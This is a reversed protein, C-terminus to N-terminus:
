ANESLTVARIRKGHPDGVEQGDKLRFKLEGRRGRVVVQTRTLRIVETRFPHEGYRNVIEVISGVTLNKLWKM